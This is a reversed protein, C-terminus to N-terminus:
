FTTKFTLSVFGRDSLIANTGTFITPSASSVFGTSSTSYNGYYGTYKLDMRYKQYLDAGVGVAWSGAANQGGATVAAQGNIGSGWSIPLFM